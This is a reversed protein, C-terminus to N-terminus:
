GQWFCGTKGDEANAQRAVYEDLGRMFWYLDMLRNRCQSITDPNGLLGARKQEMQEETRAPYPQLWREIVEENSWNAAVSAEVSCM